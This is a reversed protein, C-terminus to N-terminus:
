RVSPVGLGPVTDSEEVGSDEKDQDNDSDDDVSGQPSRGLSDDNNGANSNSDMKILNPDSLLEEKANKAKVLHLGRNRTWSSYLDISWQHLKWERGECLLLFSLQPITVLSRWYFDWALKSM